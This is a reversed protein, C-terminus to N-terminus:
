LLAVAEEAIRCFAGGSTGRFSFLRSTDLLLVSDFMRAAGGNFAKGWFGMTVVLRAIGLLRLLLLIKCLRERVFCRTDFSAVLGLLLVGTVDDRRGGMGARALSVDSVLCGIGVILCCCGERAAM